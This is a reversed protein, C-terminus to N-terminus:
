RYLITYDGSTIYYLYLSIYYLLFPIYHHCCHLDPDVVSYFRVGVRQEGRETQVGRGGYANKKTRREVVAPDMTYGVPDLLEPVDSAQKHACGVLQLVFAALLLFVFSRKSM